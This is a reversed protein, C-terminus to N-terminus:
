PRVRRDVAAIEASSGFAHVSLRELRWLDDKIRARDQVVLTHLTIVPPSVTVAVTMTGPTLATFLTILTLLPESTTAMEVDVVRAVLRTDRSMLQRALVVNSVVMEYAVYVGLRVVAIPRPRRNPAVARRSPFVAFLVVVVVLGSVINAATVSGWLLLWVVLMLVGLTVRSM